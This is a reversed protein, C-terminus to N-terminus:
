YISPEIEEAREGFERRDNGGSFPRSPLMKSVTLAARITCGHGGSSSPHVLWTVSSPNVLRMKDSRLLVIPHM